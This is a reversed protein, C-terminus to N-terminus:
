QIYGKEGERHDCGGTNNVAASLLDYYLHHVSDIKAGYLITLEDDEKRCVTWVTAASKRWPSCMGFYLIIYAM